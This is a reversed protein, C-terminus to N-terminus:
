RNSDCCCLLLLRLVQLRRYSCKAMSSFGAFATRNVPFAPRDLGPLDQSIIITRWSVTCLLAYQQPRGENGRGVQVAGLYYAGRREPGTRATGAILRSVHGMFISPAGLLSILPPSPARRRPRRWQRQGAEQRNDEAQGGSRLCMSAYADITLLQM